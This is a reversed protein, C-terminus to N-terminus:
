FTLAVLAKYTRSVNWRCVTRHGEMYNVYTQFPWRRMCEQTGLVYFGHLFSTVNDRDHDRFYARTRIIDSLGSPSCCLSHSLRWSSPWPIPKLHNFVMLLNQVSSHCSGIEVKFLVCTGNWKHGKGQMPRAAWLPCCHRVMYGRGAKEESEAPIWWTCFHHKTSVTLGLSVM